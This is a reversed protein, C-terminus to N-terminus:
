GSPTQISTSHRGPPMPGCDRAIRPFFKVGWSSTSSGQYVNGPAQEHITSGLHDLTDEKPTSALVKTGAPPRNTSPLSGPHTTSLDVKKPRVESGNPPSSHPEGKYAISQQSQSGPSLDGKNGSPTPKQDGPPRTISPFACAGGLSEPGQVINLLEAKIVQTVHGGSPKGVISGGSLSVEPKVVGTVPKAQVAKQLSQAPTGHSSQPNSQDPTSAQSSAVVKKLGEQYRKELDQNCAELQANRQELQNVWHHLNAKSGEQKIQM